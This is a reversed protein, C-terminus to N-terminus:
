RVVSLCSKNGYARLKGSILVKSLEDSSGIANPFEFSDGTHVGYIRLGALSNHSKVDIAIRIDRYIVWVEAQPLNLWEPLLIPNDSDRSM